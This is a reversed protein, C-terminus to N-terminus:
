YITLMFFSPTAGGADADFCHVNLTNGSPYYETDVLGVCNVNTRDSPTIQFYRDTISESFTLLYDGTDDKVATASLGFSRQITDNNANYLLAAKIIGNSSLNQSIDGSLIESTATINNVTLNTSPAIDDGTITSNAIKATTVANNTIDNETVNGDAIKVSTITNNALDSTGVTGDL